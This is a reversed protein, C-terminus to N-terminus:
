IPAWDAELPAVRGMHKKRKLKRRRRKRRARKKARTKRLKKLRRLERQKMKRMEVEKKSELYNEDIVLENKGAVTRFSYPGANIEMILALIWIFATRKLKM